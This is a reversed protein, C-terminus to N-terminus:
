PTGSSRRTATVSPFSLNASDDGSTHIILLCHKAHTRNERKFWLIQETILTVACQYGRGSDIQPDKLASRRWNMLEEYSRDISEGIRRRAKETRDGM